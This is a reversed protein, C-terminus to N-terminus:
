LLWSLPTPSSCVVDGEDDVIGEGVKRHPDKVDAKADNVILAEGDVEADVFIGEGVVERPTEGDVNTDTSLGKAL